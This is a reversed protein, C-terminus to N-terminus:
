VAPCVALGAATRASRVAERLTFMCDVDALEDEGPIRAAERMSRLAAAAVVAAPAATTYIREWM